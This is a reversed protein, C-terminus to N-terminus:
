AGSRELLVGAMAAGGAVAVGTVKKSTAVSPGTFLIALSDVLDSVMGARLWLSGGALATGVGLAADRVGLGRLAARGAPSLDSGWWLRGVPGPAIVMTLGFVARGYGFARMVGGVVKAPVDAGPARNWDGPLASTALAESAAATGPDGGPSPDTMPDTSTSM